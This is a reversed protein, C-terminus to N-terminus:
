SNFLAMKSEGYKRRYKGEVYNVLNNTRPECM